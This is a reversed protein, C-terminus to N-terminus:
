GNRWPIKMRGPLFEEYTMKHLTVQETLMELLRKRLDADTLEQQQLVERVKEKFAGM